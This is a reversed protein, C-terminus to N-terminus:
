DGWLVKLNKVPFIELVAKGIEVDQDTWRSYIMGKTISVMTLWITPHDILLDQVEKIPVSVSLEPADITRMVVYGGRDVSPDRFSYQLQYRWTRDGTDTWNFVYDTATKNVSLLTKDPRTMDCSFVVEDSDESQVEVNGVMAGSRLMFYKNTVVFNECEINVVTQTPTSLNNEYSQSLTFFPEGYSKSTDSVYFKINQWDLFCQQYKKAYINMQPQNSNSTKLNKNVNTFGSMWNPLTTYRSDWAVYVTSQSHVSFKVFDTEKISKREDNPLIIANYGNFEPPIETITYDRDTYVSQGVALKSRNFTNVFDFSCDAVIFEKDTFIIYSSADETSLVFGTARPGGYSVCVDNCAETKDNPDWSIKVDVPNANAVFCYTLGLSILIFLVLLFLNLRRM